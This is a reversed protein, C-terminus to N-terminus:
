WVQATATGASTATVPAGVSPLPINLMAAMPNPPASSAGPAGNLPRGVKIQLLVAPTLASSPSLVSPFCVLSSCLCSYLLPCLLVFVFVVVFFFFVVVVFLFRCLLSAFSIYVCVCVCVCVSTQKLFSALDRTALSSIYNVVSKM